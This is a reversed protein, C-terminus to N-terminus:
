SNPYSQRRVSYAIVGFGLKFFNPNENKHNVNKFYDDVTSFM